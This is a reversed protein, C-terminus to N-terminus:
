KIKYRFYISIGHKFHIPKWYLSARNIEINRYINAYNELIKAYNELEYKKKIEERNKKIEKNNKDLEEELLTEERGKFMTENEQEMREYNKWGRAEERAQRKGITEGIRM